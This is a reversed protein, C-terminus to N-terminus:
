VAQRDENILGLKLQIELSGSEAAPIDHTLLALTRHRLRPAAAVCEIRGESVRWDHLRNAWFEPAVWVREGDALDLQYRDARLLTLGPLLTLLIALTCRAIWSGESAARFPLYKTM